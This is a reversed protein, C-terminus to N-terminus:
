YWQVICTTNCQLTITFLSSRFGVYLIDCVSSHTLEEPLEIGDYNLYSAAEIM